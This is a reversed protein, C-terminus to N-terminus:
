AVDAKPRSATPEGIEADAEAEGPTIAASRLTYQDDGFVASIQLQGGLAQVYRAIAEVTSVKGREIPSVRGKTIGMREAVETQTLKLAKRRETLRYGDIYAQTERRAEALAEEAGPEKLFGARIDSWKHYEAVTV